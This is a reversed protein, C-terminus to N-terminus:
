AAPLLGADVRAKGMVEGFARLARREAEPDDLLRAAHHFALMIGQLDHLFQEADTDPRFAGAAIGARVQGRLLHRWAQHLRVLQDRVPGPRDAFESATTAFLCGGPYVGRHDWTLWRELLRTLRPPGSPLPWAPRIVERVFERAACALVSLQLAEKSRFHSAVTSKPRRLHEALTGVTLGTLGVRSALESALELIFDRTDGNASM